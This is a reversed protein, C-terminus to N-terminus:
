MLVNATQQAYRGNVHQGQRYSRAKFSQRQGHRGRRRDYLLRAEGAALWQKKATGDSACRPKMM